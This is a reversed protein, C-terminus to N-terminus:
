PGTGAELAATVDTTSFDDGVFLLSALNSKALAYPFVDGFNLVGAHGMGRGFRIRAELLRLGSVLTGYPPHLGGVCAARRVM